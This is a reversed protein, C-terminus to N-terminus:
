ENENEQVSKEDIVRKSSENQCQRWGSEHIILWGRCKDQQGNWLAILEARQTEAALDGIWLKAFSIPLLDCIIAMPKLSYTQRREIDLTMAESLVSYLTILTEFEDPM